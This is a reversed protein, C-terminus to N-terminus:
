FPTEVRRRRNKARKAPTMRTNSRKSTTSTLQSHVSGGGLSGSNTSAESDCCAAGAFDTAPNHKIDINRMEAHFSILKSASWAKRKEATEPEWLKTTIDFADFGSLYGLNKDSFPTEIIEFGVERANKLLSVRTSSWMERQQLLFKNLIKNERDQKSMLKTADLLGGVGGTDGQFKEFIDMSTAM